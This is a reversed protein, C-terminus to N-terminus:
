ENDNRQNDQLAKNIAQYAEKYINLEIVRKERKSSKTKVEEVAQTLRAVCKSFDALMLKAIKRSVIIECQENDRAEEAAQEEAEIQKRSKAMRVAYENLNNISVKM